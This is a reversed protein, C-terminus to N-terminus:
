PNRSKHENTLHTYLLTIEEMDNATKHKLNHMDNINLLVQDRLDADNLAAIQEITLM